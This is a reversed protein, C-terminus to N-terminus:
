EKPLIRLLCLFALLAITTIVAIPMVSKFISSYLPRQLIVSSDFRSFSEDGYSHEVADVNFSTMSWGAVNAQDDINSGETDPFYVLRTYDLTKHELQVSLKQNEFPYKTFDFTKFFDGKIRYELYGDEALVEYKTPDGNVFEFDKVQELSIQAPDFKFWLYFDLKFTSQAVDVKEVNILWVGVSVETPKATTQGKAVTATTLILVAILLTLIIVCTKKM